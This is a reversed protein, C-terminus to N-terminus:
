LQRQKRRLNEFIFTVWYTWKLPLDHAPLYDGREGGFGKKFLTVGAFRHKPNDDPAIGWLNYRTKGRAKAKKIAAWQLLYSAPVERLRSSSGSYHYVAEDKYFIFFSIALLQGQYSAKILQIQNDPKFTQFQKLLYQLSFPVFKVRKVVEAQLDYLNKVDADSASMEIAVGMKQAKKISYRTNKRMARLLEEESQTLDLVLTTEAHLHMPARIFGRSKFLRHNEPADKLNPRVRVFSAKEQAAIDKVSSLFHDFFGPEGWPILPGAPCELYTGRRATKKVLLAVGKLKGQRYFGLRFVAFGLSQNFKGWNFSHLFNSEPSNLVFDEWVDKNEVLKATIQSM